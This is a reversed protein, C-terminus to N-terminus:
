QAGSNQVASSTSKPENEKQAANILNARARKGMAGSLIMRRAEELAAPLLTARKDELYVIAWSTIERASLEAPKLGEAKIRDKVANRARLMALCHAASTLQIM